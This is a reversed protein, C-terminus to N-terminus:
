TAEIEQSFNFFFGMMETNEPQSSGQDLFARFALTKVMVRWVRWPGTGGLQKEPGM